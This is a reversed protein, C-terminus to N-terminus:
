RCARCKCSWPWGRYVAHLGCLQGSITAMKMRLLMEFVGEYTGVTFGGFHKNCWIGFALGSMM